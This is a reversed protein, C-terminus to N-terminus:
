KAEEQKEIYRKHYTNFQMKMDRQELKGIHYSAWPEFLWYIDDPLGGGMFPSSVERTEKVMVFWSGCPFRMQVFTKNGELSGIVNWGDRDCTMRIPFPLLGPLEMRDM